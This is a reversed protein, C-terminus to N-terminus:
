ADAPELPAPEPEDAGGLLRAMERAQAETTFYKMKKTHAPEASMVVAWREDILEVTVDLNTSM